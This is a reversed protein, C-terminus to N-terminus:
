GRDRPSPSTYLLCDTAVGWCIVSSSSVACGHTQGLDLSALGSAGSGMVTGTPHSQSNGMVAPSQHGAISFSLDDADEDFYAIRTKGDEDLTIQTGQGTSGADQTTLTWSSGDWEALRLAGDHYAIRPNGDADLAISTYGLVNGSPDVTSLAWNEGDHHAYRLLGNTSDVYSIHPNGSGDLAIDSHAGTVTSSEDVTASTWSSGTKTAYQLSGSSDSGNYFSLHIEGSTGVALGMGYGHTGVQAVKETAALGDAIVMSMLRTHSYNEYAIHVQDSDDLAINPYRGTLGYEDLTEVLWESGDFRAYELDWQHRDQYAIHPRNESDVAISVSTGIVHNGQDHVNTKTWSSEGPNRHAYELFKGSIDYYAVHLGDTSDIALSIAREGGTTYMGGYDDVSSSSWTGNIMVSLYVDDYYDDYFVIHPVDTGNLKIQSNKGTNSYSNWYSSRYDKIDDYVWESGNHYSYRLNYSGGTNNYVAYSIHPNGTSDLDISTDYAYYPTADIAETTWATGNHHAYMVANPYTTTNVYSIHPNGSSDIAISSYTGSSGGNDVEEAQWSAGNYRAYMLSSASANYYSIHQNGTQDLAMSIGYSGLSSSEGDVTTITPGPARITVMEVYAPSAGDTGNMFPALVTTGAIHIEPGM